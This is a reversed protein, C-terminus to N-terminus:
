NAVNKSAKSCAYVLSCPGALRIASILLVIGQISQTTDDHAVNEASSLWEVLLLWGGGRRGFGKVVSWQHSVVSWFTCRCANRTGRWTTLHGRRRGFHSLWLLSLVKREYDVGLWFPNTREIEGNKGPLAFSRSLGSVGDDRDHIELRNTNGLVAMRQRCMGARTAAGIMFICRKQGIAFEDVPFDASKRRTSATKVILHSRARFRPCNQPGCPNQSPKCSRRGGIIVTPERSDTDVGCPTPILGVPWM